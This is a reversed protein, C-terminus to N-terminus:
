RALSGMRESEAAQGIGRNIGILDELAIAAGDDENSPVVTWGKRAADALMEQAGNAM